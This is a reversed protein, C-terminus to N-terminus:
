MWNFRVHTQLNIVKACNSKLLNINIDGSTIYRLKDNELKILTEYLKNQFLTMDSNPHRYITSIIINRKKSEIEVWIDECNPHLFNLDKRLRYKLSNKIYLGGGDANTPSDIHFFDYGAININSVNRSSLKTESISILEPRTELENLLEELKDHNKPLSRTNLHILFFDNKSKEYTLNSLQTPSFYVTSNYVPDCNSTNGCLLLFEFDVVSAFVLQLCNDQLAYCNNNLM